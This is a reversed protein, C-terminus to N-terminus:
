SQKLFQRYREKTWFKKKKTTPYDSRSQYWEELWRDITKKKKLAARDEAERTAKRHAKHKHRRPNKDKM